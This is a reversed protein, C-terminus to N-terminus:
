KKLILKRFTFNWREDNLNKQKPLSHKHFENTPPYFIVIDGNSIIFEKTFSEQMKKSNNEFKFLRDAGFTLSAIPANKDLENEKDSHPGIYDQGNRYYNLLCFNFKYGTLDEIFKKLTLINRKWPNAYVVTGSFSYYTGKDGFSTQLRPTLVQKGMMVIYNKEPFEINKKIWSIWKDCYKNSIANKYHFVIFKHKLSFYCVNKSKKKNLEDLLYNM